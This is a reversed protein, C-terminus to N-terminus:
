KLVNNVYDELIEAAGGILEPCPRKAFFNQDRPTPLPDDHAVNLGLLVKCSLSGFREEFKRLLSQTIKYLEAKREGTEPTSYGKLNGIVLVMGSVAGCTERMRSMGGGFPSAIKCLESADITLLDKFAM